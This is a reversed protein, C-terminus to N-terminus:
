IQSFRRDSESKFMSATYAAAMVGLVARLRAADGQKPPTYDATVEAVLAALADPPPPDQGSRDAVRCLYGYLRDESVIDDDERDADGNVATLLRGIRDIQLCDRLAAILLIRAVHRVQYKRNVPHPVFGRKIWNQLAPAELGTIACLQGLTLGDTAAILPRIAALADGSEQYPVTTGPLYPPAM